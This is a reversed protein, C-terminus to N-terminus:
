VLAQKLADMVAKIRGERVAKVFARHDRQAQDAYDVAFNSIADDVADSAGTYGAFAERSKADSGALELSQSGSRAVTGLAAIMSVSLAVIAAIKRKV